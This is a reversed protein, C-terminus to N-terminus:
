MMLTLNMLIPSCINLRVKEIGRRAVMDEPIVAKNLAKEINNAINRIVDGKEVGYREYANINSFM